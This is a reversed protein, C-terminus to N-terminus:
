YHLSQKTRYKQAAKGDAATIRSRRYDRRWRFDALFLRIATRSLYTDISRALRNGICLALGIFIADIPLLTKRITVTLNSFTLHVRFAARSPRCTVLDALIEGAVTSFARVTLCFRTKDHAM